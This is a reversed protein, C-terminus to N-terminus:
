KKLKKIILRALIDEVDNHRPVMQTKGTAPQKYRDHKGGHNVFECGMNNLIKLLANRKM